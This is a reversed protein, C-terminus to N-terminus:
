TNPLMLSSLAFSYIHINYTYCGYVHMFHQNADGHTYHVTGEQSSLLSFLSRCPVCTSVGIVQCMCAHKGLILPFACPKHMSTHCLLWSVNLVTRFGPSNVPRNKNHCNRTYIGKVNSTQTHVTQYHGVTSMLFNRSQCVFEIYVNHVLYNRCSHGKTNCTHNFLGVYMGPSTLCKIRMGHKKIYM